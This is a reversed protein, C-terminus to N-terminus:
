DACPNLIGFLIKDLRLLLSFGLIQRGQFPNKHVFDILDRFVPVWTCHKIGQVNLSLGILTYKSLFLFCMFSLIIQVLARSKAHLIVRNYLLAWFISRSLLLCRKDRLMYAFRGGYTLRQRGCDHLARKEVNPGSCHAKAPRRTHSGSVSKNRFMVDKGREREKWGM